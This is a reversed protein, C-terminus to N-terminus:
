PVTFSAGARVSTRARAHERQQAIFKWFSFHSKVSSLRGSEGFTLSNKCRGYQKGWGPKLQRVLDTLGRHQIPPIAGPSLTGARHLLNLASRLTRIHVGGHVDRRDGHRARDSAFALIRAVGMFSGPDTM